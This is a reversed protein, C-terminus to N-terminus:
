PVAPGGARPGAGGPRSMDVVRVPTGDRQLRQQGAVVVRDGAALGSLIQVQGERRVGLQVEVRRSVPPAAEGGEAADLRIVHQRGGQPVIAEEPVMLAHDDTSFIALVRAFMGPRLGQGGADPLVARLSLSRGNADLLPDIAMVRADFQRGPVADLRVQVTQGVAVRDQYREPLRFDVTLTSTDELNVLDAGDKVFEGLSVRSLGVTGDFPAEIRMRQLRAKALAVQAEAVQLSARSEDLVRQAVFNAAVLEENRRLNARAISLQAEAQSLEAQQLVDDLQVLLQGRRVRAGDSFAIRAVRGSVEPRLTVSQRSRLTGVAQADDQLSVRRVEAVEVSPMGGGPGGARAAPVPAGQGASGTATGVQRKNQWWWATGSALALGLVAVVVYTSRGAM